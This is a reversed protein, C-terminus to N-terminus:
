EGTVEIDEDFELVGLIGDDQLEVEDEQNKPEM